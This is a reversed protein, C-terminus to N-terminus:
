RSPRRVCQCTATNHVMFGDRQYCAPSATPPEVCTRYPGRMGDSHYHPMVTECAFAEGIVDLIPEGPRVEGSAIRSVIENVLGMWEILATALEDANGTGNDADADIRKAEALLATQLFVVKTHLREFEETTPEEM